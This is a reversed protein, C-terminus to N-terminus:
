NIPEVIKLVKIESINKPEHSQLVVYYSNTQPSDVVFVDELQHNGRAVSKEFDFLNDGEKFWGSDGGKKASEDMSFQRALFDFPVGDKHKKIIDVRLLNIDKISLKTADLYIYSVRYCPAENKEIVKYYIKEYDNVVTKMAGKFLQFLEGALITKHKEENFVIIKGDKNSSSELFLKVQDTNEVTLLDNEINNQATISISIFLLISLPLLKIM